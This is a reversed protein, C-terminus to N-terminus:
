GAQRTLHEAQLRLTADLLDGTTLRELLLLTARRLAGAAEVRAADSLHAHFAPVVQHGVARGRAVQALFPLVASQLSVAPCVLSLSLSEAESVGSHLWLVPIYLLDGPRVQFTLVETDPLAHSGVGPVDMMRRARAEAPIHHPGALSWQKTGTQQLVFNDSHDFHAGIGDAGYTRVTDFWARPAGFVRAFDGAREALDADFASVQEIFTVEDLRETVAGGGHALARTRAAAFEELSWSRGLFTEAGGRVFLPRQRWFVAFFEDFDFTSRECEMIETM